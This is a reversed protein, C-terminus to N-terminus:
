DNTVRFKGTEQTLAEANAKNRQGLSSIEAVTRNIEGVGITLEDMGAYIEASIAHLSEVTQHTDRAVQRMTSTHAGLEGSARRVADLDELVLQSDTAQSQVAAKVRTQLNEVATIESLVRQFAGETTRSDDVLTGTTQQIRKLEHATTKSQQGSQEALARIEDAVVAFGRGADGAHAAEIAANMALLNTRAAIAAIMKNTQQLGEALSDVTEIKQRLLVLQQRGEESAVVLGQTTDSLGQVDTSVQGFSKVLTEIASLSRRVAQDQSSVLRELAATSGELTKMDASTSVSQAEQRAVQDKVSSINATIEHVCASTETLAAALEAGEDNLSGASAQVRRVMGSLHDVFGDYSRALEGIEDRRTLGLRVTLDGQGVSITRLTASVQMAPRLLSSFFARVVFFLVAVLLLSILSVTTILSLTEAAFEERVQEMSVGLFVLGFVKGDKILPDYVALYPKGLINAPGQYLKGDKVSAYAEGTTDLKTRVARKGTADQINTVVRVFDDGQAVFLTARDGLVEGLQDVLDFRGDLPNARADLLTTGDTGLAGYNSAIAQHFSWLDGKLKESTMQTGVRDGMVGLEYWLLASVALFNLTLTALVLVAAKSRVKM